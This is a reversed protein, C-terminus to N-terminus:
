VGVPCHGSARPSYPCWKCNMVNPRPRMLKDSMMKAVEVDLKSRLRELEESTFVTEWTSKQDLYWMGAMHKDLDRNTLWNAIAYLSKQTYHKLENGDRRGTKLDISVTMDDAIVFQIDQKITLWRNAETTIQWCDDFYMPEECSVDYTMITEVDDHFKEDLWAPRPARGLLHEQLEEHMRTGRDAANGEARPPEPIKDVYRFKARLPCQRYTDLASYSWRTMM